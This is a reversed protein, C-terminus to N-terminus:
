TVTLISNESLFKRTKTRSYFNSWQCNVTVNTSSLIANLVAKKRNKGQNVHNQTVEQYQFHTVEYYLNHTYNIIKWLTLVKLQINEYKEENSFNKELTDTHNFSFKEM